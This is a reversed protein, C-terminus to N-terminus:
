LCLANHSSTATATTFTFAIPAIADLVASIYFYFGHVREGETGEAGGLVRQVRQVGWCGVGLMNQGGGGHDRDFLTQRTKCM